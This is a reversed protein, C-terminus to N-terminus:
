SPRLRSLKLKGNEKLDLNEKEASFTDSGIRLVTFGQELSTFSDAINPANSLIESKEHSLNQTVLIKFNECKLNEKNEIM